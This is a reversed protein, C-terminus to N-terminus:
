FTATAATIKKGLLASLGENVANAMAQNMDGFGYQRHKENAVAIAEAKRLRFRYEGLSEGELM